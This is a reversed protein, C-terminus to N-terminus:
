RVPPLELVSLGDPARFRLKVNPLLTRPPARTVVFRVGYPALLAALGPDDLTARATRLQEYSAPFYSSYGNVMPRGHLATLLMFRAVDEYHDSSGGDPLPLLCYAESPGLAERLFGAFAGYVAPSPAETLAQAPPWIELVALAAVLAVAVCSLRARHARLAAGLAVHLGYASLLVLALQALLAARWLSRVQALGPVWAALLAYPEFAGLTLHPLLSVAVLAVTVVVLVRTTRRRGRRGLGVLAGVLALVLKAPGPFLARGHHSAVKIGPPTVLSGPPTRVFARAYAAGRTARDQSRTLHEESAARRQVIAIPAIPLAAVLAAVLLARLRAPALLRRGLALGAPVLALALFLAYQACLAYTVGLGLGLLAGAGLRPARALSLLASLSLVVGGLPVLTLVGLQTHLAPLLCALAGGALAALPLVRVRRLLLYTALGNLTLAGLLFLNYALALPLGAWLLPAVVLGALPMAESLAFTRPTPHFIPADWYGVFGHSARDSTWWLTWASTFPVTASAEAGRPYHDLAHRALPWTSACALLAFLCTPAVLRLLKPVRAGCALVVPARGAVSAAARRRPPRARACPAQTLEAVIHRPEASRVSGFGPGALATARCSAAERGRPSSM